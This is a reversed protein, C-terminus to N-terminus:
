RRAALANAPSPRPEPTVRQRLSGDVFRMTCAPVSRCPAVVARGDNRGLALLGLQKLSGTRAAFQWEAVSRAMLYLGLLFLGVRFCRRFRRPSMRQRIAQGIWM